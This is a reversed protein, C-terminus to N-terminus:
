FLTLEAKKLSVNPFTIVQISKSPHQKFFMKTHLQWFNYKATELDLLSYIIFESHYRNVAMM